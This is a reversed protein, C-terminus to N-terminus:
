RYAAAGGVAGGQNCRVDNFFGRRQAGADADHHHATQRAQSAGCVERLHVTSPVADLHRTCQFRRERSSTSSSCSGCWLITLTRGWAGTGGGVGRSGEYSGRSSGTVLPGNVM